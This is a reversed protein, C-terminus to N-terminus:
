IYRLEIITDEQQRLTHTQNRGIFDFLAKKDMPRGFYYGQLYDCGYKTLLIAQEQTEIGEAVVRIGLKKAFNVVHRIALSHRESSHAKSCFARDLKLEDFSAGVLRGLSSYGSGYDDMSINLSKCGRLSEIVEALMENSGEQLETIEFTVLSGVKEAISNCTLARKAFRNDFLDEVNVNISIELSLENEHWDVLDRMAIKHVINFLSYSYGLKVLGELFRDPTLFGLKPHDWRVLSEVASLQSTKTDFKPQYLVIFESANLEGQKLHEFLTLCRSCAVKGQITQSDLIQSKQNCISCHTGQM